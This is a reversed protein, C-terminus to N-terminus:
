QQWKRGEPHPKVKQKIVDVLYPINGVFALLSAIVALTTKLNM